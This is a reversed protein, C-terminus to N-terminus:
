DCSQAQDKKLCIVLRHLGVTMNRNPRPCVPWSRVDTTGLDDIVFADKSNVYSFLFHHLMICCVANVQSKRVIRSVKKKFMDQNERWEKAADINAPSEDNPSSLM